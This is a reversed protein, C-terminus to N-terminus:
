ADFSFVSEMNLAGIPILLTTVTMMVTLITMMM